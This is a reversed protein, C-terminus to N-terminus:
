CLFAPLARLTEQPNEKAKFHGGAIEVDVDQWAGTGPKQVAFLSLPFFLVRFSSCPVAGSRFPVTGPRDEAAVDKQPRHVGAAPTSRATAM